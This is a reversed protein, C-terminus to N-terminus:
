VLSHLLQSRQWLRLLTLLAPVESLEQFPVPAPGPWHLRGFLYRHSSRIKTGAPLDFTLMMDATKWRSRWFPVLAVNVPSNSSGQPVRQVGGAM